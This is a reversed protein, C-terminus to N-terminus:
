CPCLCVAPVREGSDPVNMKGRERCRGLTLVPSSIARRASAPVSPPSRLVPASRDGSQYGRSDSCHIHHVLARLRDRGVEEGSADPSVFTWVFRRCHRHRRRRRTIPPTLPAILVPLRRAVTKIASPSLSLAPLSNISLRRAAGTSERQWSRRGTMYHSRVSNTHKVPTIPAASTQTSRPKNETSGKALFLFESEPRARQRGQYIEGEERIENAQNQQQEESGRALLRCSQRAVFLARLLM